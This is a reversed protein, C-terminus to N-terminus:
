QNLDLTKFFNSENKRMDVQTSYEYACSEASVESTNFAWFSLIMLAAVIRLISFKPMLILESKGSNLGVIEASPFRNNKM